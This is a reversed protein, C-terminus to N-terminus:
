VTRGNVTESLVSFDGTRNIYDYVTLVFFCPSDYYNRRRPRFDFTVGAPCDGNNEIGQALTLIQNRILDPRNRYLCLGTWYGDQFYTRIPARMNAGASFGKFSGIEKYNELATFIGSLYLAKDKEGSASAPIKVSRIEDEVQKKYEAFRSLLRECNIVSDYALVLRASRTVHLLITMNEYVYRELAADSVFHFDSRSHNLDLAVAYNGPRNTKIEYFVAYENPAVFQTIEIQTKGSKVFVTMTRGILKVRKPCFLDLKKGNIYVTLTCDWLLRGDQNCLSYDTIGGKGDFRVHVDNSCVDYNVNEHYKGSVFIRGSRYTKKM